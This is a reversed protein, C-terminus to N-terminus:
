LLNSIGVSASISFILILMSEQLYSGFKADALRSGLAIGEFFQHFVLAPLLVNLSSDDSIGIAMGIFISHITVAFELLYAEISKINDFLVDYLSFDYAIYFLAQRFFSM